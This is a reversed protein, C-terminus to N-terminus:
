PLLVNKVNWGMFKRLELDRRNYLGESPFLGGTNLRYLNAAEANLRRSDVNSKTIGIWKHFESAIVNVQGANLARLLNSSSFAQTGANYCFSVLVNFQHQTLEVQIHENVCAVYEKVLENFLNIAEQESKLKDGMQVKKGNPYKTMGAGITAVGESDRYAILAIDEVGMLDKAGASDLTYNSRSM